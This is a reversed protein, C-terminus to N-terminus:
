EYRKLLCTSFGTLTAPPASALDGPVDSMSSVFVTVRWPPGALSLGRLLNLTYRGIGSPDRGIRRADLGIKLEGSGAKLRKKSM